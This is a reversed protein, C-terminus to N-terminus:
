GGDAYWGGTVRATSAGARFVSSAERGTWGGRVDAVFCPCTMRSGYNREPTEGLQIQPVSGVARNAGPDLPSWAASMRCSWCWVPPMRHAQDPANTAAVDVPMRAWSWGRHMREIRAFPCRTKSESPALDIKSFVDGRLFFNPANQQAFRSGFHESITTRRSGLESIIRLWAPTIRFAGILESVAGDDNM